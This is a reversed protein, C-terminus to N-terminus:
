QEGSREPLLQQQIMKLREEVREQGGLSIKRPQELQPGSTIRGLNLFITYNGPEEIAHRAIMNDCQRVLQEQTLTVEHPCAQQFALFIPEQAGKVLRAGSLGDKNRDLVDLLCQLEPPKLLPRPM